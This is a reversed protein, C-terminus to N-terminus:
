SASYCSRSAPTEQAALAVRGAWRAAATMGQHARRQSISPRSPSSFRCLLSHMASFQQQSPIGSSVYFCRDSAEHACPNAHQNKTDISLTHHHPLFPTLLRSDYGRADHFHQTLPSTKRPRKCVCFLKDRQFHLIHSGEKRGKRHPSQQCTRALEGRPLTLEM